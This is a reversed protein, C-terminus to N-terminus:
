FGPGATVGGDVNIVQGTIYSAGDSLLFAAVAAIEEPAGYRALPIKSAVAAMAARPDEPSWSKHVADNIPTDIMGPCIANVRINYAAGDLAAVRAIGVVGHKSACYSVFAPVGRIGSTSATCVIAGARQERMARMVHKLVNFSGTQNIDITKRFVEDLTDPLEAFDCAVGANSFCGDIRGFKERVEDVAASVAAVDTVDVGIRLHGDSARSLDVSDLREADRDLLGIKAGAAAARVAFAEGIGSAAGTVLIARGALLSFISETM